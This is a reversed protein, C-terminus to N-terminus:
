KKSRNRERLSLALRLNHRVMQRMKLEESVPLLLCKGLYFAATGADGRGLANMGLRYYKRFLEEAGSAFDAEKADMRGCRSEAPLETPGDDALDPALHKLRAEVDQAAKQAVEQILKDAARKAKERVYKEVFDDGNSDDRDPTTMENPVRNMLRVELLILLDESEIL